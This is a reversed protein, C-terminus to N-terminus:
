VITALNSTVAIDIGSSPTYENWEAILTGKDGPQLMPFPTQTGDHTHTLSEVVIHSADPVETITVSEQVHRDDEVDVVVQLGVVFGTSDAVEISVPSGSSIAKVSATTFIADHLRVAAKALNAPPIGPYNRDDYAAIEQAISLYPGTTPQPIDADVIDLQTFRLWKWEWGKRITLVVRASGARLFAQRNADPHRLNRIFEWSEPIDWFYSYLFTVVNEWEIAQNIFRVMDEHQRLVTWQTANLGSLSQDDFAIGHSLDRGEAAFAARVDPPMFDFDTGLVFKVVCKMIEDSEERRLSLTDVNALQQEIAAIQAAIEQQQAFYRIQAANYLANWTEDEWKEIVSPLNELEVTLQVIIREGANVLCYIKQHGTRGALFPKSSGPADFLPFHAKLIV